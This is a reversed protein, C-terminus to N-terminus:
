RMGVTVDIGVSAKCSNDCHGCCRTPSILASAVESGELPWTGTKAASRATNESPFVNDRQAHEMSRLRGAPEPFPLSAQNQMRRM